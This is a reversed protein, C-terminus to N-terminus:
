FISIVRCTTSVHTYATKQPGSTTFTVSVPAGAVYSALAASYLEKDEFAIYIRNSSCVSSIAKDVQILHADSEGALRSQTYVKLIVTDYVVDAHAGVASLLLTPFAICRFMM